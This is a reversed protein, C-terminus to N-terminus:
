KVPVTFTYDFYYGDGFGWPVKEDTTSGELECELRYTGAALGAFRTTDGQATLTISSGIPIDADTGALKKPALAMAGQGALTDGSYLRYLVTPPYDGNYPQLLEYTFRTNNTYTIRLKGDADLRGQIGIGFPLPIKTRPLMTYSISEGANFSGELTYSGLGTLPIEELIIELSNGPLLTVAGAAVATGGGNDWLTQEKADSLPFMGSRSWIVVGDKKATLSCPVEAPVTVAKDTRNDIFVKVQLVARQESSTDDDTMNIMSALGTLQIVKDLGRAEQQRFAASDSQGSYWYRTDSLFGAAICGSTIKMLKGTVLNLEWLTHSADDQYILLAAFSRQSDNAACAARFLAFSASKLDTRVQYGGMRVTYKGEADRGIRYILGRDNTVYTNGEGQAAPFPSVIGLMNVLTSDRSAAEAWYVSGDSFTVRIMVGDTVASYGNTDAPMGWLATTSFPVMSAGSFDTEIPELNRDVWQVDDPIVAKGGDKTVIWVSDTPGSHVTFTIWGNGASPLFTLTDVSQWSEIDLTFAVNKGNETRDIQRFNENYYWKVNDSAAVAQWGGKSDINDPYSVPLQPLQQAPKGSEEPTATPSATPPIQSASARPAPAPKVAFTFMLAFVACAVLAYAAVSVIPMKWRAGGKPLANLTRDIKDTFSAPTPPYLEKLDNYFNRNM